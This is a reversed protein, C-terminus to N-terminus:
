HYPCLPHLPPSPLYSPYLYPAISPISCPNYISHVFAISLYPPASSGRCKVRVMVGVGVGVRVRVEEPEQKIFKSVLFDQRQLQISVREPFEDALSAFCARLCFCVVIFAIFLGLKETAPLFDFIDMTYFILAANSFVSLVSIAEFIDYWTGIDEAPLPWARRM